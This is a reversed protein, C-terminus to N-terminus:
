NPSIRKLNYKSSGPGVAYLVNGKLTLTWAGALEQGAPVVVKFTKGQQDVDLLVPTELFPGASRWLMKLRSKDADIYPVLVVQLGVFESEEAIFNIDSYVALGAASNTEGGAKAINGCVLLLVIPTVVFALTSKQRSYM